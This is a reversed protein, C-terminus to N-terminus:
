EAQRYVRAFEQAFTALKTPGLVPQHARYDAYFDQDREYATMKIYQETFQKPAGTALLRQLMDEDSLAIVKLDPMALADALLTAIEPYTKEDSAVYQVTTGAAPKTLAQVVIPAIDIPAVWSGTKTLSGNTYIAHDKRISAMSGFLNYFMSTPRIFTLNVDPLMTMLLGEIINYIHLAGVEPGLNAGVSSLNVVQHVGAAKVANAYITAQRRGAEFIDGESAATIMLYVADAGMFTRTLFADDDISGIAPTAGLAKIADARKANHSIVTVDHGQQVLETAVPQSIHGLSGTLIIKM